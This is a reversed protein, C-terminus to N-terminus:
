APACGAAFRNRRFFIAVIFLPVDSPVSASRTTNSRCPSRNAWRIKQERPSSELAMNIEWSPFDSSTQGGLGANCDSCKSVRGPPAWVIMSTPIAPRLWQDILTSDSTSRFRSINSMAQRTCSRGAQSPLVYSIATESLSVHGIFPITTAARCPSWGPSSIATCISREFPQM